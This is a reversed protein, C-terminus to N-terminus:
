SANLDVFARIMKKLTYTSKGDRRKRHTVLVTGVCGRGFTHWLYEGVFPHESRYSKLAKLAEADIAFFSTITLRLPKGTTFTLLLNTLRSMLVRPLSERQARFQAYVLHVPGSLLPLMKFIDRPNHQGDDDMFVAYQGRAIPVGQLKAGSQGLNEPLLIGTIRRDRSLRRIVAATEGGDPSCDDVLIIQVEYRDQTSFVYLIEGVTRKLHGAACYCPIIISVLPKM